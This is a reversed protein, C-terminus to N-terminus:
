ELPRGFRGIVPDLTRYFAMNVNLGFDEVHDIGNYKHVGGDLGMKGM